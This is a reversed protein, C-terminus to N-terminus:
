NTLMVFWLGPSRQLSYYSKMRIIIETIDRREIILVLVMHPGNQHNTELWFNSTCIQEDDFRKNQHFLFYQLQSWIWRKCIGLFYIRNKVKNCIFKYRLNWQALDFIYRPLIRPLTKDLVFRWLSLDLHEFISGGNRVRALNWLHFTGSTIPVHLM